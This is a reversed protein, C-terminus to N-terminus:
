HCYPKGNSTADQLAAISSAVCSGGGGYEVGSVEQVHETSDRGAMDVLGGLSSSKTELQLRRCVMESQQSLLLPQGVRPASPQQKKSLGPPSFHSSSRTGSTQVLFNSVSNSVPLGISEDDEDTVSAGTVEDSNVRMMRDEVEETSGINVVGMQETVDDEEEWNEGSFMEEVSRPERSGFAEPEAGLGTHPAVRDGYGVSGSSTVSEDVIGSEPPDLSGISSSGSLTSRPSLNPTLSKTGSSSGRSHSFGAVAGERERGGTRGSSVSDSNRFQGAKQTSPSLSEARPNSNSDEWDNDEQPRHGRRSPKMPDNLETSTGRPPQTNTQNSSLGKGSKVADNSGSQKTQSHAQELTASESGSHIRQARPSLFTFYCRSKSNGCFFM